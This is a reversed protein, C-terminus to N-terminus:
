DKKKNEEISYPTYPYLEDIKPYKSEFNIEAFAENGSNIMGEVKSINYQSAGDFYVSYENGKKSKVVISNDNVEIIKQLVM